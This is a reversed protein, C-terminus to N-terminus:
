GIELPHVACNKHVKDRWRWCALEMGAPGPDTQNVVSDLVRLLVQRPCMDWPYSTFLCCPDTGFAHLLM